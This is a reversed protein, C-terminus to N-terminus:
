INVSFFFDEGAPSYKSLCIDGDADDNWCWDLEEAKCKLAEMLDPM